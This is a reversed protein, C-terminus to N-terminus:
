LNQVLLTSNQAHSHDQKENQCLFPTYREGKRSYLHLSVLLLPHFPLRRLCTLQCCCSRLCSCIQQPLKGLRNLLPLWNQAKHVPLQHLRNFVRAHFMGRGTYPFSLLIWECVWSWFQWCNFWLLAVQKVIWKCLTCRVKSNNLSCSIKINCYSQQKKAQLFHNHQKM